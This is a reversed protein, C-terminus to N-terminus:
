DCEDLIPPSNHSVNLGYGQPFLPSQCGTTPLNEFDFPLQDMDRPWSFPLTGKFTYDGFLLDSIGNGETGPLWAAIWADVDQYQDTIILPRGSILIVVMAKSHERVDKIIQIDKESLTLDAKDGVGEAYPFEGVVVIGVDALGDFQGSADFQIETELSVADTIGELITTGPQIDGSTGQWTITWGGCQLGIDDAARGAVYITKKDKDIPLLNNDNKLLVLSERVAQRALERHDDSGVVSSLSADAFPYDFLGLLFKVTLIRRVADDIRSGSIDGDDVAKKMVDIYGKYDSPVMNMDVGANIATVVATYYNFDIQNLAGWDSIVFGPFGLEGKLVVSLWYEQAHMKTGFWSSYSPMISMAGKEVATQYPPLFLSRVGPEDIRMDGQDLLYTAETSTGFETGGDGIYHKPTSLVYLTQGPAPTFDDQLVQLGEMYAVGLETVLETNESFSEYTRGWRIDQPVALVPAFNWPIGTALMERATAQGIRNMLDPNGAAGLGIQHPFITAGFLNGHGHVADVGYILPIGLRTALAERQFADTMATWGEITNQDPSGGGGSLISGINYETIDGPRISDKEVQTMQGIKEELTMRSILDDVRISVPANSDLYLPTQTGSLQSKEGRDTSQKSDCSSILASSILVIAILFVRYFDRQLSSFNILFRDIKHTM